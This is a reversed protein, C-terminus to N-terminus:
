NIEKAARRAETEAAVRAAPSPGHVSAPDPRSYAPPSATAQIRRQLDELAAKSAMPEDKVTRAEEMGLLQDIRWQKMQWEDEIRATLDVLQPISPVFTKSIKDGATGSLVRRVAECFAPGSRDAFAIELGDLFADANFGERSKEMSAFMTRCLRRAESTDCPAGLWGDIGDRAAILRDREDLTLGQGPRFKYYALGLQM